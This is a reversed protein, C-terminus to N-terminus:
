SMESFNVENETRDFPNLGTEEQGKHGGESYNGPTRMYVLTSCLPMKDYIFISLDSIGLSWRM